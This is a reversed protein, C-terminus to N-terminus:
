CAGLLAARADLTTPGGLITVTDADSAALHHAIPRPICSPLAVYLPVGDVAAGIGGSLADAFAAGSAIYAGTPEPFVAANVAASVEYRDAGSFREVAGLRGLEAVIGPSVSDPGGVVTFGTAGTATITSRTAADLAPARGNIVLLPAGVAHAASSASLADAFTAGTALFIQSAGSPYAEQVLARSNEYRDAGAIVSVLAGTRKATDLVPQGVTAPGGVVVIRAPALRKLESLVSAPVSGRTTLLLPADLRAATTAASLADSFVEGSALFVVDAGDPFARKSVAVSVEYRDAGDLRSVTPHWNIMDVDVVSFFGDVSSYVAQGDPSFAPDWSTAPVRATVTGTAADIWYQSIGTELDEPTGAPATVVIRGDPAFAAQGPRASPVGLEVPRAGFRALDVLTATRAESGLAVVTRDDPSFTLSDAVLPVSGRVSRAPLDYVTLQAAGEVFAAAVATRGDHSVAFAGIPATVAVSTPAAFTTLDYRTIVARDGSAEPLYASGLDAAFQVRGVSDVDSLPLSRLTGSAALDIVGVHSSPPGASHDDPTRPLVTYVVGLRSGDASLQVRSDGPLTITKRVTFSATDIVTVTAPRFKPDGAWFTEPAIAYLTRGDPSLAGPYSGYKIAVFAKERRTAADVAM